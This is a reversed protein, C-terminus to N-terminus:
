HWWIRKTQIHSYLSMNESQKLKRVFETVSYFVTKWGSNHRELHLSKYCESLPETLFPFKCDIFLLLLPVLSRFHCSCLFNFIKFCPRLIWQSQIIYSWLSVSKKEPLPCGLPVIHLFIAKQSSPPWCCSFPHLIDDTSSVCPHFGVIHLEQRIGSIFGLYAQMQDLM